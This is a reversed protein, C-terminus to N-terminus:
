KTTSSLIASPRPREAQLCQDLQSADDVVRTRITVGDRPRGGALRAASLCFRVWMNCQIESALWLKTYLLYVTSSAPRAWAEIEFRLGGRHRQARFEIQGTEMHGKLTAFRFSTADRHVIRVPGNWPGPIRVVFNQGVRLEVSGHSISEVSAVEDPVAKNLDEALAAMLQDAPCFTDVIDVAFVRHYLPGTGTQLPQSDHDAFHAAPISPPADNADGPQTTRHLPTIAWMYRWSVLLM